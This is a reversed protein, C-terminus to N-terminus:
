LNKPIIITFKTYEDPVSDVIIEGKHEAVIIEYSMSLGLGTGVGAAKTTFLPEFIKSKNEESIGHGNDKIIILVNDPNNVTSVSVKPSFDTEEFKNHELITQSREFAAFCANNVINLIVRGLDHAVVNTKKLTIDLNFELNIELNPTSARLGDYAIESYETVLSNIDTLIYEGTKGRSHQLMGSIINNARQGHSNIKSINTTLYDVLTNINEWNESSINNKIKSTEEIFEQLIDASSESFNIIFNLPNQIEHAIGAALKGLSIMKDFQMVKKEAEKLIAHSKLLDDHNKIARVAIGIYTEIVPLIIENINRFANKNYSQLTLVAFVVGNDDRLPTCFVSNPYGPFLSSLRNDFNDSLNYYEINTNNVLISEGLRFCTSIFKTKDDIKVNLSKEIPKGDQIGYKCTLINEDEDDQTFIALIDIPLLEQIKYYLDSINENLKISNLALKSIDNLILNDDLFMKLKSNEQILDYTKEKIHENASKQISENAMIVEDRRVEADTKLELTQKHVDHLRAVAEYLKGMACNSNNVTPFTLDYLTNTEIASNISDAINIAPKIYKKLTVTSLISFIILLLISVVASNKTFDIVFDYFYNKSYIIAVVWNNQKLARSLIYAEEGPFINTHKGLRIFNFSEKKNSLLTKINKDSNEDQRLGIIDFFYQKLNNNPYPNIAFIGFKSVLMNYSQQRQSIQFKNLINEFFNINCSVSIIGSFKNEKKVSDFKLMIPLSFTTVNFKENGIKLLYPESWIPSVNERSILYWDQLQFDKKDASQYEKIIKKNAQPIYSVYDGSEQPDSFIDVSVVEPLTLITSRIFRDLESNDAITSIINTSNTQSAISNALLGTFFEISNLTSEINTAMAELSTKLNEGAQRKASVKLQFMYSFIIALTLVVFLFVIKISLINIEAIKKIFM